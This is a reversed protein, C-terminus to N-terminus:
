AAGRMDWMEVICSMFVTGTGTLEDAHCSMVNNSTVNLEGPEFELFTNDASNIHFATEPFDVLGNRITINYEGVGSFTNTYMVSKISRDYPKSSCRTDTCSVAEWAFYGDTSRRGGFQANDWTRTLVARDKVYMATNNMEVEDVGGLTFVFRNQGLSYWGSDEDNSFRLAPITSNGSVLNVPVHFTSGNNPASRWSQIQQGNDMMTVIGTFDFYNLGSTPADTFSYTPTSTFGSAGYTPANFTTNKLVFLNSNVQFESTFITQDWTVNDTYNIGIVPVDWFSSGYWIPFELPKQFIWAVSNWALVANGGAPKFTLSASPTASDGISLIQGVLNIVNSEIDLQGNFPHCIESSAVPTTDTWKLCGYTDITGDFTLNKFPALNLDGTLPDNTTDLRLYSGDLFTQNISANGPIIPPIPPELIIGTQEGTLELTASVISIAVIGMVIYLMIVKRVM